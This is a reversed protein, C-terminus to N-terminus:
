PTTIILFSAGESDPVAEAPALCAASADGMPALVAAEEETGCPFAVFHKELAARSEDSLTLVKAATDRVNRSRKKVTMTRKHKNRCLM